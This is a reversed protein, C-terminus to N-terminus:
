AAVPKAQPGKAIDVPGLSALPGPQVDALADLEIKDALTVDPDPTKRVVRNKNLAIIKVSLGSPGRTIGNMLNVRKCVGLYLTIERAVFKGISNLTACTEIKKLVIM